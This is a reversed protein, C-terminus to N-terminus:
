RNTYQSEGRIVELPNIQMDYKCALGSFIWQDPEDIFDWGNTDYGDYLIEWGGDIDPQYIEVIGGLYRISIIGRDQENDQSDNLTVSVTDQLYRQLKHYIMEAPIDKKTVARKM